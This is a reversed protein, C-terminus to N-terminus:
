RGVSKSRGPRYKQRTTNQIKKPLKDIFGGLEASKYAKEVKESDPNESLAVNEEFTMDYLQYDQFVPSFLEQYKTYDYEYISIGNLLIEGKSPVYLRTILKVFTSKGSGNEGVVALKEGYGIKINLNDIVMRESGPYCFSVNKFEIVSNKDWKPEKDGTSYQYGALKM